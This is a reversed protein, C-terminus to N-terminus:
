RATSCARRGMLTACNAWSSNVGAGLSPKGNAADLAIVRGDVTAIIVRGNYYALGKNGWTMYLPTPALERVKADYEWLLKGTVADFARIHSHGSTVFLKGEAAM